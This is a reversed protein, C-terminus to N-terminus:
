GPIARSELLSIFTFSTCTYLLPAMARIASYQSFIDTEPKEVACCGPEGLIIVAEASAVCKTSQLPSTSRSSLWKSLMSSSAVFM